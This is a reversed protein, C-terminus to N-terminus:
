WEPPDLQELIRDRKAPAVSEAVFVTLNDEDFRVGLVQDTPLGPFSFAPVAESDTTFVSGAADPGVDHCEAVEVEGSRTAKGATYGYGVYVTGGLRVQMACDLAAATGGSGDDQADCGTLLLAAALATGPLTTRM